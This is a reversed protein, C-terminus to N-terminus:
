KELKANNKSLEKAARNKFYLFSDVRHLSMKDVLYASLIYIFM